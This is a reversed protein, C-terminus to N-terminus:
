EDDDNIWTGSVDEEFYISRSAIDAVFGKGRVISGSKREIEVVEGDKGTLQKNLNDWFLADGRVRMDEKSSYFELGERLELNETDSFYLASSCAGEMIIGEEPDLERFEVSYLLIESKEEYYEGKDATVEFTGSDGKVSIHTYNTLVIDPIMESIEGPLMGGEYDLSCGSLLLCSLWLFVFLKVSCNDLIGPNFDVTPLWRTNDSPM